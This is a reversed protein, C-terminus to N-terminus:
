IAGSYVSHVDVLPSAFPRSRIEPRWFPQEVASLQASLDPIRVRM